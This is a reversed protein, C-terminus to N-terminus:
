QAEGRQIAAIESMLWGAARGLKRRPPLTGAKEHRLLTARHVGLLRAAEDMRVFRDAEVTPPAATPKANSVAAIFKPMQAAVAREVAAEIAASLPDSM